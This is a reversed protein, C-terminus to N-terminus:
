RGRVRGASRPADPTAYQMPYYRPDFGGFDYVLPTGADAGSPQAAGDGLARQRDRGGEAQAHRSWAFLEGMWGADDFLPPAGHGLYIAPLASDGPQGSRRSPAAALAAPEFADFAAAARAM